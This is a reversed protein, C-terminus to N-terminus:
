HMFLLAEEALYHRGVFPAEYDFARVEIGCVIHVCYLRIYYIYYISICRACWVPFPAKITFIKLFIGGLGEVYNQEWAVPRLYTRKATSFERIILRASLCASRLNYLSLHKNILQDTRSITLTTNPPDAM